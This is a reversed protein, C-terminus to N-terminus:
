GLGGGTQRNQMGTALSPHSGLLRVRGKPGGRSEAKAEAPASTLGLVCAELGDREGWGERASEVM